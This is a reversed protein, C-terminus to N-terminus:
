VDLYEDMLKKKNSEKRVEDRKKREIEIQLKKQQEAM